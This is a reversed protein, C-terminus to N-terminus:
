INLSIHSVPKVKKEQASGVKYWLNVAALPVNKNQYLIVELGNGLKYKEYKLNLLEMM